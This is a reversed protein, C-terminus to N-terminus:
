RNRSRSLIEYGKKLDKFTARYKVTVPASDSYCLENKKQNIAEGNSPTKTSIGNVTIDKFGIPTNMFYFWYCPDGTPIDYYEVSVANGITNVEIKGGYGHKLVGHDTSYINSMKGSQIISNTDIYTNNDGIITQVVHNTLESRKFIEEQLNGRNNEFSVIALLLTFVALGIATLTVAWKKRTKLDTKEILLNFIYAAIFGIIAGVTIHSIPIVLLLISLGTPKGLLGILIIVVFTISLLTTKIYRGVNRLYGFAFCTCIIASTYKGYILYSHQFFIMWIPLLGIAVVYLLDRSYDKFKM